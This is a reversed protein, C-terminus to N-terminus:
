ARQVGGLAKLVEVIQNSWLAVDDDRLTRENSQFAVRLLMSYKGAPVSDGRFIEMLAITQMESLRLDRISQEIREYIVSDDFVFSFDREVSPYRSLPAYAPTRLSQQFLRELMIEAVFVEQKLKRAAAGGPAIPGFFGIPARDLLARYYKKGDNSTQADYSLSEMQFGALVTEVDGKFARFIEAPDASRIGAAIAAVPAGMCLGASEQTNDGHMSFVHGLEFLRVNQTGRNLYHALMELMGPILSARMASAEESLPNAIEVPTEGSFNQSEAKAIFTNSLAENYGLALMTARVKEQKAASDTEM